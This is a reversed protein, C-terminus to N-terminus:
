ALSPKSIATHCPLNTNSNPNSNPNPGPKLTLTLSQHGVSVGM